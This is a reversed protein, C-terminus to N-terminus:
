SYPDYFPIELVRSYSTIIELTLHNVDDHKLRQKKLTKQVEDITDGLETYLKHFIINHIDTFLYDVFERFNDKEFVLSACNNSLFEDLGVYEWKGELTVNIRMPYMKCFVLKAGALKCMCDNSRWDNSHQGTKELLYQAEGPYIIKETDHCCAFCNHCVEKYNEAGGDWLSHLHEYQQVTFM